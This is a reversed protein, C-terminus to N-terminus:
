MCGFSCSYIAQLEFIVSVGGTLTKRYKMLFTRLDAKKKRWKNCYWPEFPDLFKKESSGFNLTM